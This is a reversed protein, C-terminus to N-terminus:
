LFEGVYGSMWVNPNIMRKAEGSLRSAKPMNDGGSPMAAIMVIKINMPITPPAKLM